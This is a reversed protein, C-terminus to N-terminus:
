AGSSRRSSAVRYLSYAVLLLGLVTRVQEETGDANPSLTLWPASRSAECAPASEGLRTAVRQENSTAM